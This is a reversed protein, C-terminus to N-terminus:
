LSNFGNRIFLFIYKSTLIDVGWETCLIFAKINRFPQYGGMFEFNYTGAM